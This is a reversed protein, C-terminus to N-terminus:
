CNDGVEMAYHICLVGLLDEKYWGKIGIEVKVERQARWPLM